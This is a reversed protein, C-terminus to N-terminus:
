LVPHMETGAFCCDVDPDFARLSTPIQIKTLLRLFLLHIFHDRVPNIMASRSLTSASGSATITNFITTYNDCL